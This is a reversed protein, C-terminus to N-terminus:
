LGNVMRIRLIKRTDPGVKFRDDSREGVLWIIDAGCCLVWLREKQLLSFKCDTLYDSVKKHGAMGFPVFSDGKEWHRLSLPADLKEADFYAVRKDHEFEYGPTNDCKTMELVPEKEAENRAILLQNRDKVVRWGGAEFYKGPQSDLSRFIDSVQAANFGLPYLVEFLLTEPATERQLAPILIGDQTRIRELAQEVAINYITSVDDLCRSTNMITERVSPNMEELLPLLRLRIKNRTFRDQLNTSDTVYPQGIEELYNMIEKRDLCLLPRVVNGNRPRMGRLGNIGTGRVLNLLFTEVNDDRHHAVAVVEAGCSLRVEEFWRYRLERAAMEVSIRNAKAEQETNFHAVYVPVQLQGCLQRVFQEDRESEDGRLHFNCHAAECSYGLEILIRLLAVSDAGGSLAVLIKDGPAFLNHSTIYRIIKKRNM